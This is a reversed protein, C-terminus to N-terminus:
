KAELWNDGIGTDAVLPTNLKMAGEMTEKVLQAVAPALETPAELVLEDHIQLLLRAQPCEAKLRAHLEVMAKKILDAASGQVVSNIALREAQNREANNRSTINDIQRRRGLITTVFGKAKAEEVCQDLFATIGAYKAKYNAILEGASKNDLGEVQRALGWASVGYVIGFNIAKAKARLDKSVQAEDVGFVQAAVAAHIDQGKAFANLLGPDNSLHALLRLEIQSYDAVVLQHGPAAVFAGRIRKGQETRIPINQLNPDSSSLRGTAAGTQHFRCHVRGDAEIAEDLAVLYTGVLKTLSRYELMLRPVQKAEAEVETAGEGDALKELVESDTSRGTTTKKLSKFHLRDFLVEALQKPSDPNFDGCLDLIQRRLDVLQAELEIRQTGLVQRDVCIGADEMDTLVQVLPMEVTDALSQMGMATCREQLIHTLRLTMDADEAGYRAASALPVQDMTRQPADTKRKPKPGILNEIDNPEMGLEGRALDKLGMGPAGTLFAGIMSDFVLGRVEYGAARLTQLDYKANHACKPVQADEFLPRTLEIVAEPTLHTHPEPSRMPIYASNSAGEGWALCLGVLPATRGLGLTETDFALLPKDQRLKAVLASIEDRTRLIAPRVALMNSALCEAEEDATTNETTEEAAAFLGFAAPEVKKKAPKAVASAPPPNALQFSATRGLLKELDPRLKNFGLQKFREFM